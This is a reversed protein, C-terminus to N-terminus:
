DLPHARWRACADPLLRIRTRGPKAASLESQGYHIFSAAGVFRFWDGFYANENGSELQERSGRKTRRNNTAREEKNKQKQEKTKEEEEKKGRKGRQENNKAPQENVSTSTAFLTDM